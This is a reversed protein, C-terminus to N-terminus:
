KDDLADELAKQLAKVQPDDASPLELPKARSPKRLRLTISQDTGALFARELPQYGSAEARLVHKAGDKVLDLKPGSVAVGDLTLKASLPQVDLTLHVFVPPPAGLVRSRTDEAEQKMQSQQYHRWLRRAVITGGGAVTVILGAVIGWGVARSILKRMRPPRSEGTMPILTNSKQSWASHSDDVTRAVSPPAKPLTRDEEALAEDFEAASQFRARADVAMARLIASEVHASLKPQLDRPRKPEGKAIEFLLANFNAAVFPREGTVMRYLIAGVAYVDARADVAGGRAQEPAMYSPTGVVQGTATLDSIAEGEGPWKCIGFDLVKVFDPDGGRQILFINEPKLDRHVIGRAHAAKLAALMQRAVHVARQPPLPGSKLETGLTRGNLLEMVLFPLGGRTEGLDTVEVINEHGTASAARAERRFRELLTPSRLFEPLLLKAALRKGLPGHEVEYVAGMGGTKIHRVVVYKEDLRTGPALLDVVSNDCAPPTRAL